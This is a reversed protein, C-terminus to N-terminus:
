GDVDIACSLDTGQQRGKGSIENIYVAADERRYPVPLATLWRQNDPDQCARYVSDVDDPRHPRLLLRESRVTETTLDVGTLDLTM